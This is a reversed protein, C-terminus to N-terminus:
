AACKSGGKTYRNVLTQGPLLDIGLAAAEAVKEASHHQGDPLNRIHENVDFPKIPSTYTRVSPIKEAVPSTSQVKAILEPTKKTTESLSNKFAELESKAAERNKIVVTSGVVIVTVGIVAIILQEKHARFWAIVGKENEEM